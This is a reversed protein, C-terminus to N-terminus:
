EVYKFNKLDECKGKYIQTGASNKLICTGIYFGKMERSCLSRDSTVNYKGPTNFTKAVVGETALHWNCDTYSFAGYMILKYSQTSPTHMYECTTMYYKGSGSWSDSKSTIDSCSIAFTVVNKCVDKTSKIESYSCCSDSKTSIARTKCCELSNNDIDCANSPITAGPPELSVCGSLTPDCDCTDCSGAIPSKDLAIVTDFERSIANRRIVDLMFTNLDKGFINPGRSGNIDILGRVGRAGVQPEICVSVGNKLSACAGKFEPSFLVKDKNKYQYYKSAFCDGNSEGCYKSVRLYKKLFIGSNDGYSEPQEDRYMITHFFSVKNEAVALNNVAAEIGKVEREYLMTFTKEHYKTVVSPIVLIALFGVVVVALLIEVLTFGEKM